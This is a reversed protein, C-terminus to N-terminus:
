MCYKNENKNSTKMGTKKVFWYFNYSNDKPNIEIM